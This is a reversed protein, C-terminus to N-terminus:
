YWLIGKVSLNIFPHIMANYLLYPSALRDWTFVGEIPQKARVSSLFYSLYTKNLLADAALEKRPVYAQAVSGGMGSYIIGTPIDLEQYLKVAFFYGVASFEKASQPTLPEWHGKFNQIPHGAYNFDVTLLRINPFNAQNIEKDSNELEKMRFQMNSQGSAFWIDGILLNNLTQTQGESTISIEHKAFDGKKAKPVDIYANFAGLIDAQVTIPQKLWDAAITIKANSYTFGWVNFPKSQQIIMNSQLADAFKLHNNQPLAITATASFIFLIYLFYLKFLVKKIKNLM